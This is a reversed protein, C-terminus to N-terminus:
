AAAAEKQRGRRVLAESLWWAAHDRIEPPLTMSQLEQSRALSEEWKGSEGAYQALDLLFWPRLEGAAPLASSLIKTAETPDKAARAVDLAERPTLACLPAMLFGIALSASIRFFFSRRDTM